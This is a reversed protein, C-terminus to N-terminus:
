DAIAGSLMLPFILIIAPIALAVAAGFGTWQLGQKIRTGVAPVPKPAEALDSYRLYPGNLAQTKLTFGGESAGRILGTLIKGNALKCRVFQHKKQGLREVEDRMLQENATLTHLRPRGPEPPAPLPLGQPFFEPLAGAPQSDVLVPADIEPAAAALSQASIAPVFVFSLSWLIVVPSLRM